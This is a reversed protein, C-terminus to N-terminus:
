ILVNTTHKNEGRSYLRLQNLHEPCGNGMSQEKTIHSWQQYSILLQQILYRRPSNRAPYDEVPMHCKKVRYSFGM